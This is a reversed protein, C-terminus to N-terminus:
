YVFLYFCFCIFVFILKILGGVCGIILYEKNNFLEMCWPYRDFKIMRLEKKNEIDWERLTKDYSISYLKNTKNNYNINTIDDKHGKLITIPHHNHKNIDYINIHKNDDVILYRNNIINM